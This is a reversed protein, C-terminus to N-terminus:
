GSGSAAEDGGAGGAAAAVLAEHWLGVELGMCAQPLPPPLAGLMACLEFLPTKPSPPQRLVPRSSAGAPPGGSSATTAAQLIQVLGQVIDCPQGSLATSGRASLQSASASPQLAAAPAAAPPPRPPAAPAAAPAPASSTRPRKTRGEMFIDSGGPAPASWAVRPQMRGGAPVQVRRCASARSALNTRPPPAPFQLPESGRCAQRSHNLALQAAGHEVRLCCAKHCPSAEEMHLALPLFGPTHRLTAALSNLAPLKAPPLNKELASLPPGEKRGEKQTLTTRIPNHSPM